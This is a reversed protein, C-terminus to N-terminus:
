GDECEPAVKGDIAPIGFSLFGFRIDDDTIGPKFEETEGFIDEVMFGAPIHRYWEAPFMMLRGDWNGMGMEKLAIQPMTRLAEWEETSSPPGAPTPQDPTRTFQPTRVNIEENPTAGIAERIEAALESESAKALKKDTMRKGEM